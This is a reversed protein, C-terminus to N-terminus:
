KGALYDGAILELARANSILDDDSDGRIKDVAKIIVQAQEQNFLVTLGRASELEEDTLEADEYEKDFDFDAMKLYGELEQESVPISALIEDTGLEDTLSKILEGYMVEDFPVSVKQFVVTLRKARSDSMTGLNNIIVKEYNLESCAKWRHYGDIIQYKGDLERVTIPAKLGYYKISKVVEKYNEDEPPKPNWNNPVVESIPVIKYDIKLEEM